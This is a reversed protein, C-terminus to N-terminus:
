CFWGTLANISLVVKFARIPRDGLFRSHLGKFKAAELNIIARRPIEFSIEKLGDPGILGSLPLVGSISFRHHNM